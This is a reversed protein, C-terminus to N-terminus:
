NGAGAAGNGSIRPPIGCRLVLFLRRLSSGIDSIRADHPSILAYISRTPGRWEYYVL